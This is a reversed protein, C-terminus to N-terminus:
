VYLRRLLEEVVARLFLYREKVGGAGRDVSVARLTKRVLDLSVGVELGEVEVSSGFVLEVAPDELLFATGGGPEAEAVEVDEARKFLMLFPLRTNKVPPTTLDLFGARELQVPAM